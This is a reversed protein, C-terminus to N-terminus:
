DIYLFAASNLITHCYTALAARRDGQWETQLHNLSEIGIRREIESPMRNLARQYVTNVQAADPDIGASDQSSLIAQM